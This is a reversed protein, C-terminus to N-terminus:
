GLRDLAVVARREPHLHRREQERHDEREGHASFDREGALSVHTRDPQLDDGDHRERQPKADAGASPPNPERHLYQRMYYRVCDLFPSVMCIPDPRIRSTAAPAVIANSIPTANTLPPVPIDM